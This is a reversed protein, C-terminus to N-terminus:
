YEGALAVDHESQAAPRYLTMGVLPNHVSHGAPFYLRSAPKELQKPHLAPRYEGVLAVDHESQVTPFYAWSM